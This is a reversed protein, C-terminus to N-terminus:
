SPTSLNLFERECEKLDSWAEQQSCSWCEHELRARRFGRACNSLVLLSDQALSHYFLTQTKVMKKKQRLYDCFATLYIGQLIGKEAQIPLILSDTTWVFLNSTTAEQLGMKADQFILERETNLQRKLAEEKQYDAYKIQGRGTRQDDSELEFIVDLDFEEPDRVTAYWEFNGYESLLVLDIRIISASSWASLFHCCEAIVRDQTQQTAGWYSLSQRLRREHYSWLQAGVGDHKLTTFPRIGLRFSLGELWALPLSSLAGNQNYFLSLSVGLISNLEGVHYNGAWRLSLGTLPILTVFVRVM